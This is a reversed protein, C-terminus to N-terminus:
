IEIALNRNNIGSIHSTRCSAPYHFHSTCDYISYQSIGPQNGPCLLRHRTKQGSIWIRPVSEPINVVEGTAWNGRYRGHQTTSILFWEPSLNDPFTFIILDDTKGLSTYKEITLDENQIKCLAITKEDAFLLKGPDLSHFQITKVIKLDGKTISELKKLNLHDGVLNCLYVDGKQTRSM